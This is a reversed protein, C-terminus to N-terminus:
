VPGGNWLDALKTDYFHFAHILFHFPFGGGDILPVAKLIKDLALPAFTSFKKLFSLPFPDL